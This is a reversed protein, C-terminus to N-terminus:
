ETTNRTRETRWVAQMWPLNGTAAGDSNETSLSSVWKIEFVKVFFKAKKKKKKM